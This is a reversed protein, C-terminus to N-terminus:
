DNSTNFTLIFLFADKDNEFQVIRNLRGSNWESWNYGTYFNNKCNKQCWSYIKTFNYEDSYRVTILKM